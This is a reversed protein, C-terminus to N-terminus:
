NQFTCESLEVSHCLSRRRWPLSTNKWNLKAGTCKPFWLEWPGASLLPFDSLNKKRPSTNSLDMEKFCTLTPLISFLIIPFGDVLNCSTNISIFPRVSPIPTCCSTPHIPDPLHHPLSHVHISKGPFTSSLLHTVPRIQIAWHPPPCIWQIWKLAQQWQVASAEQWNYKCLHVGTLRSMRKYKAAKLLAFLCVIVEWTCNLLECLFVTHNLKINGSIDVM